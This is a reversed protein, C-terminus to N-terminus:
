CEVQFIKEHFIPLHGIDGLYKILDLDLNEKKIIDENRHHEPANSRAMKKKGPSPHIADKKNMKELEMQKTGNNWHWQKLEM